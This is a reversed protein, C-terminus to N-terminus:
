LERRPTSTRGRLRRLRAVLARDPTADSGTEAAPDHRHQGLAAKANWLDVHLRDIEETL